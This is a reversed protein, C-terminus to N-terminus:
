QPQKAKLAEIKEKLQARQEPTLVENVKSRTDTKLEKMKEKKQDDTLSTDKGISERKAKADAFIDKLKGKQDDTLNLENVAEQFADRMAQRSEAAQPLPRAVSTVAPLFPVSLFVGLGLYVLGRIATRQKM